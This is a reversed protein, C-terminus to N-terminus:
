ITPTSAFRKIKIRTVDYIVYMHNNWVGTVEVTDGDHLDTYAKIKGKYIIKASGVDVLNDGRKSTVLIFTNGSLSGAKITGKLSSGLKQVNEDRVKTANITNTLTQDLTGWISLKDGVAIRIPTMTKNDRRVFKAGTTIVTYSIGNITVGMSALTTPSSFTKSVVVVNKFVRKKNANTKAEASMGMGALVLTAFTLVAITKKM